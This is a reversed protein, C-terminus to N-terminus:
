KGTVPERVATDAASPKPERSAFWIGALVLVVGGAFRITISEDLVLWGLCLAIAPTLFGILSLKVANIRALLYFYGWFAFATGFIALYLAPLITNTNLDFASFDEFILALILLFLLGPIMQTHTLLLSDVERLHRKIFVATFGAAASSVVIMTAGLLANNGHLSIDGFFIVVLGSFGIVIGIVKLPTVKEDPLMRVSFLAVFFPISAFLVSATGSSIFRQGWYITAYCFGYALFGAAFIKGLNRKVLSYDPKRLLIIAGLVVFAIIFRITAFWFPPATELGIKVALWTSGWVLVL